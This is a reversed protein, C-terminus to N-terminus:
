SRGSQVLKKVVDQVKITNDFRDSHLTKADAPKNRTWPKTTCGLRLADMVHTAEGDSVCDERNNEDREIMPIYERTYQCSETIYLMAGRENGTLRNGLQNWGYIRACNGRVLHVGHEKFDDATTFKEGKEGQNGRDQFPLSDTVVGEFCDEQGTRSLIGEAIKANRMGVGKAPDIPDCGYWERYVIIAGAQVTFKDGNYATVETGDSVCIWLVAFPEASGWDFTRYKFWWEPPQFDPLLHITEDYQRFFDGIPSDWDGEDLAKALAPDFASLRGKHSEMDISKNDTARSPIYQRTFGAVKEIHFAPRAKVFNRRFYGMSKGVPNATYIVKPFVPRWKEPIVKKQEPTIRCWGRFMNILREGIQTAEEIAVIHKEIGQASSFQREDQCHVFEIFSGNWFKVGEKTVKVKGVDILPKLMAVFGSPGRVHNASIDKFKKRILSCQLEPIRVCWFILMVRIFHSKGGESAGGFLVEQASTMLAMKQRPWLKLNLRVEKSPNTTM